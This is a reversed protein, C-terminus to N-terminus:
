RNKECLLEVRATVRDLPTFEIRAMRLPNGINPLPAYMTSKLVVEGTIPHLSIGGATVCAIPFHGWPWEKEGAPNPCWSLGGDLSLKVLLKIARSKKATFAGRHIIITLRDADAPIKVPASLQVELVGDLRTVPNREVAGFVELPLGNVADIAM